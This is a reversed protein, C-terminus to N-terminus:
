QAVTREEAVRVEFHRLEYMTGSYYTFSKCLPDAGALTSTQRSGGGAAIRAAGKAARSLPGAAHALVM